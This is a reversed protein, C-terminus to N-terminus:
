KPRVLKELDRSVKQQEDSDQLSDNHAAKLEEFYAKRDKEFLTGEYINEGRLHRLTKEKEIREQKIEEEKLALMESDVFAKAYSDIRLKLNELTNYELRVQIDDSMLFPRHEPDDRILRYGLSRLYKYFADETSPETNRDMPVDLGMLWTPNVNLAEAILTLREKKPEAYGSLYQSITSQSIKTKESLAVARMGRQELAEKLRKKFPQIKEEM